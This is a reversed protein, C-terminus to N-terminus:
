VPSPLLSACSCSRDSNRQGINTMIKCAMRRREWCGFSCCSEKRAIPKPRHRNKDQRAMHQGSGANCAASRLPARADYLSRIKQLFLQTTLGQLEWTHAVASQFRQWADELHIPSYLWFVNQSGLKKAYERFPELVGRMEGFTELSRVSPSRLGSGIFCGSAQFVMFGLKLDALNRGHEAASSVLAEHLRETFAGTGIQNRMKQKVAMLIVLDELATKLDCHRANMELSDFCIGANYSTSSDKNKRVYGSGRVTTNCAKKKDQNNVKASQERRTLKIDSICGQKACPLALAHGGERLTVHMPHNSKMDRLHPAKAQAGTLESPSSLADSAQIALLTTVGRRVRKSNRTKKKSAFPMGPSSDSVAVMMNEPSTEFGPQHPASEAAAPALAKAESHCKTGSSSSPTAANDAMWKELIVRQKQSFQNTIVDNRADRPLQKLLDRIKM